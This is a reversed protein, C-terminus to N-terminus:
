KKLTFVHKGSVSKTRGPGLTTKNWNLSLTLSTESIDDITVDVGDDRKFSTAADNTFSWTGSAPWVPSANTSTYATATFSLTMGAFTSSSVGDITVNNVSWSGSKLQDTVVDKPVPPAPPDCSAILMVFALISLSGLRTLM